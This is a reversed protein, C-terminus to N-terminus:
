PHKELTLIEAHPRTELRNAQWCEANERKLDIVEDARVEFEELYIGVLLDLGPGNNWRCGSATNADFDVRDCTVLLQGDKAVITLGPMPQEPAAKSSAPRDCSIFCLVVVLTMFILKM